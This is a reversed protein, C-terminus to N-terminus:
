CVQREESLEEYYSQLEAEYKETEKNFKKELKRRAKSGEILADWMKKGVKARVDFKKLTSDAACEAAVKADVEAKNERDFFFKLNSPPKM